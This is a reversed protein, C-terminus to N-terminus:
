GYPPSKKYFGYPKANITLRGDPMNKRLASRSRKLLFSLTFFASNDQNAQDREKKKEVEREVEQM